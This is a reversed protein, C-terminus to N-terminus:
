GQAFWRLSESRESEPVLPFGDLVHAFEDRTLEFRHALLAQLRVATSAASRGEALRRALSAIRRDLRDGRWPPAPLSMALTTTVHGGMLMRVVANLVFSNLLACLAHQEVPQLGPRLCFLTHTTVVGAPVVAAILTLRNGVGSVDRYALRPRAIREPDILAALAAHPLRRAATLTVTFPALHKGEAVPVGGDTNGVLHPAVDTANLERGFSVSWGERSGLRPFRANLSTLLELDGPRRLDPIRPPSGTVRELLRPTLTVASADDGRAPLEDLQDGSRIGFVAQCRQTAGGSTASIVAFRLGRHVPFLGQANDLGALFDIATDKLLRQRLVSAGDDTAVSWPLVLGIRGGSRLLSLSRDVFAQYLNLHGDGCSPYQGSQRIYRVLTRSGAEADGHDRRLMDWPPNGIVADFGPRGNLARDPIAFVDPFELPWHFFGHSAALTQAGRVRREVHAPTLIGNARIVTDILARTEAADPPFDGPRSFWRACWIHAAV